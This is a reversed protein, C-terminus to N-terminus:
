GSKDEVVDVPAAESTYNDILQGIPIREIKPIPLPAALFNLDIDLDMLGNQIPIQVLDVDAVVGGIDLMSILGRLSPDKEDPDIYYLIMKLQEVGISTIDIQGEIDKSVMNHQIHLTADIFPSAFLAWSTAKSRLNPFDEILKRTNLRSIHIDTKLAIPLPNFALGVSGQIRGGLFEFIFQNLKIWNQAIELDLLIKRFVLNGARIKEFILPTKEGFM